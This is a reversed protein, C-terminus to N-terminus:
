YPEPAGIVGRDTLVVWAGGARQIREVQGAGPLTDGPRVAREGDPGGILAADDRAGLVVYRRLLPRPRDISGTTEMSVNPGLKPPAVPKKPQSLANPPPSTTAASETRKELKEIRATLEATQASAEHDFREGLKDVKASEDHDLREVRQSLQALASSLEASSAARSKIESVSRRLEVLEDHSKANEIANLRTTLADVTRALAETEHAHETSMNAQRSQNNVVLASAGAAAGVLVVAAAALRWRVFGRSRAVRPEDIRESQLTSLVIAPLGPPKTSAPASAGGQTPRAAPDRDSDEPGTADRSLDLDSNDRESMFSARLQHLTLPNDAQPILSVNVM